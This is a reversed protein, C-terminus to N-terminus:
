MPTRATRRLASVTAQILQWAPTVAAGARANEAGIAYALSWQEFLSRYADLLGIAPDYIHTPESTVGNLEIVTFEGRAFAEASAARVDFRGFYFGDFRRAVTEVADALALSHHRRGDLFEAGRCHSGCDGLSVIDDAAPVTTLRAHQAALHFRAMCVTRPGDLILQELTRRGDGTVAPLRKETISLIRGRPESPRRVYFVGFEVGPVYEQIVTDGGAGELYAELEVRRRAVKVGTGRQGQDPKLVIPLSLQRSAMFVDAAAIRAAPPLTGAILGSRAIWAAPEGLGQLIAFKSEGAVGSSPIAPNAATFLTARRHTIALWAIWAAVPPYVAWLPWYEWRTLRRWSSLLLRRRRYSAALRISWAGAAVVVTALGLVVANLRRMRPVTGPDFPAAAAAVRTATASARSAALGRDVRGLFDVIAPAVMEPREFLMFHNGDLVRLESQPVLRAHEVAAEVPVLPDRRGHVILTPVQVRLLAGRLPRQDSDYFNRAYPWPADLAGGHPVLTGLAWLGALQVGHVAHNVRYSGFLEMEQVGIASLLTLSAVRSAAVDVLSLAVGGGMSFGLVHVRPLALRDLLGGVYIAHARFSYDPIRGSSSGFGPLDPALVRRASLRRSLQEFVVSSGPSGHLLLIPTAGPTAAATDRYALRVTQAPRTSGGVAPLALVTTGKPASPATALGRGIQSACLIAAYAGVLRWRWRHRGRGFSSFPKVARGPGCTRIGPPAGRKLRYGDIAGAM